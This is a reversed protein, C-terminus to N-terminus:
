RLWQDYVEMAINAMMNPPVSMGCVYCPDNGCFDYDAPFTQARRIDEDSMLAKDYGRIHRMSSAITQCVDKDWDVIQTFYKNKEGAIRKAVESLSTEGEKAAEALSRLVTGKNMPVGKETRIEGFPIVDHRFNLQLPQRKDRSAIFFVRHRAQPVDMFAANLSFIQVTYGLERFRNVIEHVYGKAKGKILGVVNEAIVVKPKLKEVTDLFVFFLDDLTQKTQGERFVKEKGWTKERKGAFSFTTCPPSGDLIDIGNLEEPIEKLKNFERLDMLFNYKPDLNARYMANIVPDIEVGGLVEFGARKYGMCSGGGCAFCSFVKIPKDQKVESLKWDWSFRNMSDSGANPASM